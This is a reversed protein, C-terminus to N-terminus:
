GAMHYTHPPIPSRRSSHTPERTCPPARTRVPLGPVTLPFVGQCHYCRIQPSRSAVARPAPRSSGHGSSTRRPQASSQAGGMPALSSAQPASNAAPYGPLTTQLWRSLMLLKMSYGPSTSCAASVAAITQEQQRTKVRRVVHHGTLSQKSKVKRGGLTSVRFRTSLLRVIGHVRVATTNAWSTACM